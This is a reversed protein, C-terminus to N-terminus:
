LRIGCMTDESGIGCADCNEDWGNITLFAELPGALSCGYLWEGDCPIPHDAGKPWRSDIGGQHEECSVVIGDEVILHKVKKYAGFAIYGGAMAERVANLWGPMLVSLDDAYAIY